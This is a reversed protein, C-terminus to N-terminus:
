LLILFKSLNLHSYNFYKCFYTYNYYVLPTSTPYMAKRANYKHVQFPLLKALIM